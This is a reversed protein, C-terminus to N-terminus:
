NISVCLKLCCMKKLHCKSYFTFKVNFYATIGNTIISGEVQLSLPINNGVQFGFSKISLIIGSIVSYHAIFLLKLYGSIQIEAHILQHESVVLSRQKYYSPLYGMICDAAISPSRHHNGLRCYNETTIIPDHCATWGSVSTLDSPRTDHCASISNLKVLSPKIVGRWLLLMDVSRLLDPLRLRLLPPPPLSPDPPHPCRIFLPVSHPDRGGVLDVDRICHSTGPLSNRVTTNFTTDTDTATMPKLATSSEKRSTDRLQDLPATM